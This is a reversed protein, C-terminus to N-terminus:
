YTWTIGFNSSISDDTLGFTIFPEVLRNCPKALTAALRINMPEQITGEVREGNAKIEEVYSGFFQTSLTVRENVAFGTGLTYNFETGPQFDIGFYEHEFQYRAGFGYFLVVPDYRPQVWLLNGSIAWFGNGLSPANPTFIGVVGFPDGGVPALGAITGIIYPCDKYADRLQATLGFGIDGVGGDSEYEDYDNVAAQVNAWGVPVQIFGQVRNLLGMRLEMPVALERGKFEVNDVFFDGM